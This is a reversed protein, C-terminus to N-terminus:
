TGCQMYSWGVSVFDRKYRDTRFSKFLSTSIWPVNTSEGQTIGAGVIAGSHIMPGEKGVFMGGAVSFLVGVAKAVMTLLDTVGPLQLMAM